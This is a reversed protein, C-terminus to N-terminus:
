NRIEEFYSIWDKERYILNVSSLPDILEREIVLVKGSNAKSNVRKTEFYIKKLLSYIFKDDGGNKMFNLGERLFNDEKRIYTLLTKLKILDDADFKFDKDNPLVTYDGIKEQLYHALFREKFDYLQSYLDILFSERNQKNKYKVTMAKANQMSFVIYEETSILYKEERCYMYDMVSKQADDQLEKFSPSLILDDIYNRYSYGHFDKLYPLQFKFQQIVKIINKEFTPNKYPKITKVPNYHNDVYIVENSFISNRFKQYQDATSLYRFTSKNNSIEFAKDLYDELDGLIKNENIFLELKIIHKLKCNVFQNNKAAWMFYNSLHKGFIDYNTRLYQEGQYLKFHDFTPYKMEIKTNGQECYNIEEKLKKYVINYYLELLRNQNSIKIDHNRLPEQGENVPLPQIHKTPYPMIVYIRARKRPRAIAQIVSNIGDTFVGYNPPISDCANRQPLFIYYATNEDTISIGTKFNTGINCKNNDFINKTEATCLNLSGYQNIIRQGTTSLIIKEALGRSFTLINIKSAKGIEANFLKKLGENEFSYSGHDYLLISLDSVELNQKRESELIKIKHNTLEAFYKVVVKSAENFTASSIIVKHTYKRWRLLNFVLDTKFNHIADHVEDLIIIVKKNSIRIYEILDNVFIRKTPSQKVYYDGPNGLLFNFTFLQVPKHYPYEDDSNINELQRYDFIDEDPIGQDVISTWYQDLLSKFPAVILIVYGDNRLDYYRKVINIIATTKGQGVSANIITTDTVNLNINEILFDTIFGNEDPIINVPEEDFSYGEFDGNNIQKYQIPSDFVEVEKKNM